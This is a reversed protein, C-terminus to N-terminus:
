RLRIILFILIGDDPCGVQRGKNQGRPRFSHLFILHNRLGFQKAQRARVEQEQALHRRAATGRRLQAVRM